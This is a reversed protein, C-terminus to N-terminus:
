TDNLCHGSWMYKDFCVELMDTKYHTSKKIWKHKQYLKQFLNAPNKCQIVRIPMKSTKIKM